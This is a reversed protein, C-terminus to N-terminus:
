IREVHCQQPGWNNLMFVRQVDEANSDDKGGTGGNGQLSPTSNQGQDQTTVQVMKLQIKAQVVAWLM